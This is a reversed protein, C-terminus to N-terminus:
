MDIDYENWVFTWIKTDLQVQFYGTHVFEFSDLLNRSQRVMEEHQQELKIMTM